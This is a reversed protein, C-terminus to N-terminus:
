GSNIQVSNKRLNGLSAEFLIDNIAKEAFLKQEYELGLLKEGWVKAVNPTNDNEMNPDLLTLAKELLANQKAIPGLCPKKEM